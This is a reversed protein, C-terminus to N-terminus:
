PEQRQPSTLNSTLESGMTHTRDNIIRDRMTENKSLAIPQDALLLTLQQWQLLQLFYVPVTKVVFTTKGAPTRM